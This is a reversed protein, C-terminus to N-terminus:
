DSAKNISGVQSKLVHADASGIGLEGGWTGNGRIVKIYALSGYGLNLPAVIDSVLDIIKGTWQAYNADAVWTIPAPNVWGNIPPIVVGNKHWHYYVNFVVTQGLTIATDFIAHIHFDGIPAQPTKSHPMQAKYSFLDGSNNRLFGAFVGTDQIQKFNWSTAGAGTQIDGIVDDYEGIDFTVVHDNAQLSTKEFKTANNKTQM